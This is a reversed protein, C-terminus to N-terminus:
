CQVTGCFCTHTVPGYACDFVDGTPAYVCTTRPCVSGGGGAGGGSAGVVKKMEERSLLADASFNFKGKKM